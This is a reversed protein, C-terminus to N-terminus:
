RVLTVDRRLVFWAGIAMAAAYVALGALILPDPIAGRFVIDHLGQIGYTAPILYSVVQVPTALQELPLVFGTFFISVLLVMMSYQVAQSDTKSVGSIIFGLGLSALIILGLGGAYMLYSGRLSIGFALMAGTLGAAVVFAIAGFGLYKGAIAEAPSLPSARFVDILGLQRERVLSLAAFTVALHQVLLVLTGPSYFLGPEPSVDDFQTVEVGFPSVLLGPDVNRAERLQQEVNGVSAEIERAAALATEEDESGADSLADDFDALLPGGGAGLIAAVSAFLTSSSRTDAEALAVQERIQEIERDAATRDGEELAAALQASAEQLTALGSEADESETQAVDVVEALVRRNIEDVSLRALLRISGRLVPDVERHIVQFNAQEGARISALPEAPAVILVDVEGDEMRQRAANLDTTTGQLDIRRGLAESLDGGNAALQAEESTVVLLTRFPAPNERYGLGFILLILFPGVVLTLLLRPQRLVSFLEKHTFGLARVLRSALGQKNAM